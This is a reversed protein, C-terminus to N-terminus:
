KKFAAAIQHATDTGSIVAAEVTGIEVGEHLGEGAFYITDDVPQKLVKKYKDGNVVDYSYAGCTHVDSSWNFVHSAKLKKQLDARSIAFIKALSQLAKKIIEQESLHKLDDANPGGSWGTLMAVDKPHYTWWTPIVAQSFIFGLKDLDRGETFEKKKWFADEFQLITKVVNGYGLEKAASVKESIAPSFHIRESQLMGVSVTILVKRSFFRHQNTVVEVKNNSWRIQKVPQSLFVTVGNAKCEGYLYDIMKGYGGEIRYQKDSSKTLEEKMALTSAKATDAAYYGEVYNKLSFRLEEFRDGQLFLFIQTLSGSNKKLSLISKLLIM